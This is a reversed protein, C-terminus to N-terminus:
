REEGKKIENLILEMARMHAGNLVNLQQDGSIEHELSALEHALGTMQFTGLTGKLRHLLMPLQEPPCANLQILSDDLLHFREHDIFSQIRRSEEVM